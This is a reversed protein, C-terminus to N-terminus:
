LAEAESPEDWDCMDAAEEADPNIIDWYVRSTRGTKRNVAKATYRDDGIWLMSCHYADETLAYREGNVEVENITPMDLDMYRIEDDEIMAATQFVEADMTDEEAGYISINYMDDRDAQVYGNSTAIVVNDQGIKSRSRFVDSVIDRIQEETFCYTLNNSIEITYTM